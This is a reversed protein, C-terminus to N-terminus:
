KKTSKRRSKTTPKATSDTESEDTAQDKTKRKKSSKPPAPLLPTSIMIQESDEISEMDIDDDLTERVREAAAIEPVLSQIHTYMVSRLVSIYESVEKEVMVLELNAPVSTIREEFEKLSHEDCYTYCSLVAAVAGVTAGEDMNVANCLLESCKNSTSVLVKHAEKM